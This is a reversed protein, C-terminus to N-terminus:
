IWHALKSPKPDLVVFSDHINEANYAADKRQTLTYKPNGEIISTNSRCNEANRLASDGARRGFRAPKYRIQTMNEMGPSSSQSDLISTRRQRYNTSTSAAKAHPIPSKRDNRILKKADKVPMEPIAKQTPSRERLQYQYCAKRYEPSQTFEADPEIISPIPKLIEDEENFRSPSPSPRKPKPTSKTTMNTNSTPLRFSSTPKTVVPRSRPFDVYTNRYEPNFELKGKLHLYPERCKGKEPVQKVQPDRFSEYYEPVDKSFQGNPRLHDETKLPKEKEIGRPPQHFKARYEPLVNENENTMQIESGSMRLNDAKRIAEPKSYNAYMKFNDQYEPIAQFNGQMKIHSMQPISHAKESASPPVFQRKYESPSVKPDKEDTVARKQLHCEQQQEAARERQQKDEKLKHIIEIEDPSTNEVVKPKPPSHIRFMERPLIKTARDVMPYTIYSSRYEPEMEFPGVLRLSEPKRMPFSRCSRWDEPTFWLYRDQHESRNFPMLGELRLSTARRLSQTRKALPLHQFHIRYETNLTREAPPLDKENSSALPHSLCLQSKTLFEPPNRRRYFKLQDVCIYEHPHKITFRDSHKRSVALNPESISLRDSEFSYRVCRRRTKVQKKM